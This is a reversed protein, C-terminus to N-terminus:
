SRGGTELVKLIDVNSSQSPESKKNAKNKVYDRVLNVIDAEDEPEKSTNLEKVTESRLYSYLVENGIYNAHYCLAPKDFKNLHLLDGGDSKFRKIGDVSKCRFPFTNGYQDAANINDGSKVLLELVDIDSTYAAPTFGKDDKQATFGAKIMYQAMKLIDKKYSPYEECSKVIMHLYSDGKKNKLNSNIIGKQMLALFATKNHELDSVINDQNIYDSQLQEFGRQQVLKDLIKNNLNFDDTKYFIDKPDLIMGQEIAFNQLLPYSSDFCTRLFDNELKGQKYNSVIFDTCEKLNNKEDDSLSAYFDYDVDDKEGNIYKVYNLVVVLDDKSIELGYKCQINLIDTTPCAEARVREPLENFTQLQKCAFEQAVMSKGQYYCISKAQKIVDEKTFKKDTSYDLTVGKEIYYRALDDNPVKRMIEVGAVKVDAGYKLLLDAMERSQCYEFPNTEGYQRMVKDVKGTNNKVWDPYEKLFKSMALVNDAQLLTVGQERLRRKEFRSMNNQNGNTDTM